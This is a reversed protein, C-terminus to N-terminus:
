VLGHHGRQEILQRLLAQYTDAFRQVTAAHFLDADYDLNVTLRAGVALIDMELDTKAFLRTAHHPVGILGAVRSPEPARDLNFFTAYVPAASDRGALAARVAGLRFGPHKYAAVLTQGTERVFEALTQDARLRSRIPLTTSCNGVLRDDGDRERLAWPVGVVLDDQGSVLHLLRCYVAFLVTFSTARLTRGAAAVGAALEADLEVTVNGARFRRDAPRPLPRDTPLELVPFGDAFQGAWYADDAAGEAGAARASQAQVFRRFSPAPPLAAAGGRGRLEYARLIEEILVGFAWGDIVTHHGILHIRHHDDAMRLVAARFVQGARLDFAQASQEAAWEQAGKERVEEPLGSIDAFPVDVIKDVLVRQRFGDQSFATRLSGHRKVTQAVAKALAQVDADGRLDLVVSEDYSGVTDGALQQSLWIETQSPTLEFEEDDPPLDAPATPAPAPTTSGNLLDFAQRMVRAHVDLFAGAASRSSLVAAPVPAAEPVSRAVDRLWHRKREFPYTPLQLGSRSRGVHFGSWDIRQGAAYLQALSDAVVAWDEAGRRLSALWRGSGVERRGAGILVQQPGIELYRDCGREALLRVGDAFRVTQELHREWYGADPRNEEDFLTGDLDSVMPIRPARYEVGAAVEAFAKRAAGMMPSHFAFRSAVDLLGVGRETFAQRVAAVGEPEGSVTVNKAGNVAAVALVYRDQFEALAARVTEEDALVAVMAGEDSAEQVVRGREVALRLGDALDFVGAVCAAALEGVSHGLVYDPRVGLSEWLQALAYQLAFLLPQTYQTQNMLDRDAPGPFLISPLSRGLHPKLLEDCQLLASRFVANTVYLQRGMDAYQAGQGSFLFALGGLDSGRAASIHVRRGPDGAALRDLRELAEEHSGVTFAARHRLTSRGVNLTHCVEGIPTEPRDRLYAGYRSALSRLAEDTRASLTLVQHPRVEPGTGSRRKAGPAPEPPEQLIVHANTGGFGFSSVGATRPGRRPKWEAAEAAVVTRGDDPIAPNRERYHLNAPIRGHKLMLLVKIIGAIGAAAETHGINTKVSGIVLPEGGPRGAGLVAALARVEIPDGLPTGTGHAEVYDVDGAVLGADRLADRLVAQQAAGNPATLGNSRGDQNTASGKVVAHVPDGDRLAASLPKLLVLGCGESRVYGDAAADFTKCRGDAAMMGAEVFVETLDPTLVLNVGGALALDAEGTRLSRCAMHLAVLSSSCATDVAISPGRLDLHYSLRNAAISSAQGTASHRTAGLRDEGDAGPGAAAVAQLRGYDSGSIGVFVGTRSGALTDVAIGASEFAEWAAELLLRQQPDVFSAEAGSLAFFPADFGDVDRLLGHPRSLEVPRSGPVPDTIADTGDTLLRWFEDPSDAGPFRCAYGIVAVPEAWQAAGPGPGSDSDSDAAATPEAADGLALYTSLSRITPYDWLLTPSLDRGLREQLESLLSLADRSSIGFDVFVTDPDIAEPALDMRGAIAERLVTAVADTTFQM